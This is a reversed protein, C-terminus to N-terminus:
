ILESQAMELLEVHKSLRNIEVGATVLDPPLKRAKVVADLDARADESAAALAM